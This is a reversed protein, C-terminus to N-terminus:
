DVDLEDPLRSRYCPDGPEAGRWHRLLHGHRCYSRAELEMDEESVHVVRATWETSFVGLGRAIALSVDRLARTM